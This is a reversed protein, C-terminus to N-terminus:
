GSSLELSNRWEADSEIEVAGGMFIVNQILDNVTPVFEFLRKLEKM